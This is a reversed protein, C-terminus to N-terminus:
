SYIQFLTHAFNQIMGVIYYTSFTTAEAIIIITTKAQPNGSFESWVQHKKDKGAREQSTKVTGM